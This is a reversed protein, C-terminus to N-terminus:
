ELTLAGFRPCFKKGKISAEPLGAFPSLPTNQTLQPGRICLFRWKELRRRRRKLQNDKPRVSGIAPGV